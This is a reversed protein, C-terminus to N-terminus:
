LKIIMFTFKKRKKKLHDGVKSPRRTAYLNNGNNNLICFDCEFVSLDVLETFLQEFPDLDRIYLFDMFQIKKLSLHKLRRNYAILQDNVITLYEFTQKVFARLELHELLSCLELLRLIRPWRLTHLERDTDFDIKLSRVSTLLNAQFILALNEIPNVILSGSGTFRHAECLRSQVISRRRDSTILLSHVCILKEIIWRWRRCALKCQVRDALTLQVFISALMEDPLDNITFQREGIM